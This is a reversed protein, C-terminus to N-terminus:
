WVTMTTKGHLIYLYEEQNEDKIAKHAADKFIHFGYVPVDPPVYHPIYTVGDVLEVQGPPQVVLPPLNQLTYQVTVGTDFTCARPPKSWNRAKQYLEKSCITFLQM